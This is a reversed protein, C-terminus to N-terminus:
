LIRNEKIFNYYNGYETNLYKFTRINIPDVTFVYISQIKKEIFM